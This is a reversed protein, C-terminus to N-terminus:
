AIIFEPEKDSPDFLDQITVDNDEDDSPEFLDDIIADTPINFDFSPDNERIAKLIDKSTDVIDSHDRYGFIDDEIWIDETNLDQFPNSEDIIDDVLDTIQDQKKKSLQLRM